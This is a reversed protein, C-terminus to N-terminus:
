HKSPPSLYRLKPAVLYTAFFQSSTLGPFSCGLIGLAELPTNGM